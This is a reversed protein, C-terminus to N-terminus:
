NFLHSCNAWWRADGEVTFKAKNCKLLDIKICGSVVLLWVQWLKNIGDKGKEGKREREGRERESEDETGAAPM